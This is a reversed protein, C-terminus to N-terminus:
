SGGALSPFQIAGLSITCHAAGLMLNGWTHDFQPGGTIERREFRSILGLSTEAIQRLFEAINFCNTAAIAAHQIAHCFIKGQWNAIMGKINREQPLHGGHM